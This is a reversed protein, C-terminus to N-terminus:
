ESAVRRYGQLESPVEDPLTSMCTSWALPPDFVLMRSDCQRDDAFRLGLHGCRWACRDGGLFPAGSAARHRLRVAARALRDTRGAACRSLVDVACLAPRYYLRGAHHRGMDGAM